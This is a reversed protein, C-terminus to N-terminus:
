RPPYISALTDLELRHRDLTAATTETSDGRTEVSRLIGNTDHWEARYIVSEHHRREQHIAEDAREVILWTRLLVASLAIAAFTAVREM